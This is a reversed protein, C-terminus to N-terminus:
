AEDLIITIHSYRHLIRYARGQARPQIRKLQPGKDVAIKKVYLNDIDISPNQDANAIASELVRKILRAGKKPMLNLIHVADGAKKSKIADAVLRAKQPSIRIYKAIARAQM